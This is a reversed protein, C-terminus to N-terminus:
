RDITVSLSVTSPAYGDNRACTRFYGPFFDPILSPPFPPRASRYDSYSLVPYQSSGLQTFESANVNRGLFIFKVLEGSVVFDYVSANNFAVDPHTLCRREGPAVDMVATVTNTQAFVGAGAAGAALVFAGAAAALKRSLNKFM